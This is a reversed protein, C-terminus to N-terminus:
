KLTYLAAELHRLQNRKKTGPSFVFAEVTVDGVTHSVFPGGMDDGEMQWLGRCVTVTHGRERSRRMTVSGAVTAMHMDDTEGKINARMVSDRRAVYAAISTAPTARYVVINQMGSPANNGMWLFDRGQKSATLDAPVWLTRGFRQAVTREAKANRKRRLTGIAANLEARNLLARLTAAHRPLDRRLAEESPTGIRVVMQPSAYLNKEYRLRTATHLTPDIDVVVINRALRLSPTLGDAAIASVDFQPERQPLGEVPAILAASVIGHRDGVVLVEYPRGGSRPTLGGDRCSALLGMIAALCAWVRIGIGRRTM